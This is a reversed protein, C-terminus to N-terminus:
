DLVYVDKILAVIKSFLEESGDMYSFKSIKGDGNYWLHIDTHHKQEAFNLLLHWERSDVVKMTIGQNDLMVAFAELFSKMVGIESSVEKSTLTFLPLLAKFDEEEGSKLRPVKMEGKGNYDFFLEIKQGNMELTVMELYDRSAIDLIEAVGSLRTKLYCQLQEAATQERNSLSLIVNRKNPTKAAPSARFETKLFPSVPKWNILEVRHLGSSVGTYIWKFYERNTKGRNEGQYTNFYVSEFSYAMGKNVTMAWGFKVKAANLLKFYESTPVNLKKLVRDRYAKEFHTLKRKDKADRFLIKGDKHIEAYQEPHQLM